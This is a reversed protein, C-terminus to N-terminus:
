AAGGTRQCTWVTRTCQHEIRDFGAERLIQKCRRMGEVGYAAPHFEIVVARLGDLRAHELVELEGGEIDCLLVDPRFSDLVANFDGTAVEVTDAKGSGEALLSSGLYSRGIHFPLSAPRDPASLLVAHHVEARDGLGNLAHLARIHPLLDPNAEYSRLVIPQTNVAVVGGVIGLGAGLELVRDGPRTVALAGAIEQGEYRGAEIRAIRTDTLMPSSPVLLGRCIAAVDPLPRSVAADPLPCPHSM